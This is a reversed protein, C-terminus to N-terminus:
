AANRSHIKKHHARWRRERTNKRQACRHSCYHQRLDDPLFPKCCDGAACTNWQAGCSPCFHVLVGHFWLAQGDHTVEQREMLTHMTVCCQPVTTKQAIILTATPSSPAITDPIKKM